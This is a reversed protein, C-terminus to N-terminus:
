IFRSEASNVPQFGGPGVPQIAKRLIRQLTVSNNENKIVYHSNNSLEDTIGCKVVIIHM